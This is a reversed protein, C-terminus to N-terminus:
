GTSPTLRLSWRGGKRKLFGGIKGHDLLSRGEPWSWIVCGALGSDEARIVELELSAILGQKLGGGAGPCCPGGALGALTM